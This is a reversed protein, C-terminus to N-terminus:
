AVTWCIWPRSRRGRAYGCTLVRSRFTASIRRLWDGAM